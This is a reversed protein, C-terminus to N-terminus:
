LGFISHVHNNSGIFYKRNIYKSLDQNVDPLFVPVSLCAASILVISRMFSEPTAYNCLVKFSNSGIMMAVM